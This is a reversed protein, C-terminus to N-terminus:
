KVKEALIHVLMDRAFMDTRNEILRKVAQRNIFPLDYLAQAARYRIWWHESNLLSLLYSADQPAGLRGLICVLQLQVLWDGEGFYRRVRDLEYPHCVLRLAMALSESETALRLTKEVIPFPTNRPIADLLRLHSSQMQQANGEAYKLFVQQFSPGAQRLMSAMRMHTWNHQRVLLPMVINGAQDPDISILARLVTMALLPSPQKLLTLLPEWAQEDGLHGLVSVALLQEEFSGTVLLKRIKVDLCSCRLGQNLLHKSDGRLIEQYHLWQYLFDTLDRRAINPSELTEGAILRILWNEAIKRFERCRRERAMLVLRMRLVTFVLVLTLLTSVAGVLFAASVRFDSFEAYEM